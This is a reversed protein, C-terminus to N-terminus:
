MHHLMEPCSLAVGSVFVFIGIYVFLRNERSISQMGIEIIGWLSIWGLAALLVFAFLMSRSHTYSIFIVKYLDCGYRTRMCM